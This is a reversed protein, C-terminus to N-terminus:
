YFAVSQFVDQGPSNSLQAHNRFFDLELDSLQWGEITRFFQNFDEGFSTRVGVDTGLQDSQDIYHTQRQQRFCERDSVQKTEVCGLPM